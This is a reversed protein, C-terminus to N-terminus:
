VRDVVPLREPLVDLDDVVLALPQGAQDLAEEGRLVLVAATELELGLRDIQALEHSALDVQDGGVRRVVLEADLDVGPRQRHQGVALAECLHHDVQERVGDLVRRAAAPDANPDVAFAGRDDGAHLVLPEADRSLVLRPDEALKEAALRARAPDRTDPEPQREGPLDDLRVAAPDGERADFVLARSKPERQRYMLNNCANATLASQGRRPAGPPM